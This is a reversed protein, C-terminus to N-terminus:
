VTCQNSVQLILLVVARPCGGRLRVSEPKVVAAQIFATISQQKLKMAIVSKPHDWEAPTQEKLTLM